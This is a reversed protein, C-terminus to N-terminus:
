LPSHVNRPSYAPVRRGAREAERGNDTMSGVPIGVIRCTVPAYFTRAGIATAGPVRNPGYLDDPGNAGAAHPLDVLRAVRTEVAVHRDLHQGGRQGTFRRRALPEQALRPGRGRQLVGVDAREVIDALGAVAADEQDHLQQVALGRQLARSLTREVDSASTSAPMARASARSVACAAPMTCRSMLGAFTTRVARPGPIRSKPTAWIRGAAGADEARVASGSGCSVDGPVATPVTAYMDGSCSRPSASSARLSRKESPSTSNSSAVPRGAKVPLVPEAMAAAIRCWAGASGDESRGPRGDRMSSTM